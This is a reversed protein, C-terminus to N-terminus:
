RGGRFWYSNRLTLFQYASLATTGSLAFKKMGTPAALRAYERVTGLGFVDSKVRDGHMPSNQGDGYQMPAEVSGCCQAIAPALEGYLKTKDLSVRAGVSEALLNANEDDWLSIAV